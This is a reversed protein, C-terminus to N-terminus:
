SNAAGPPPTFGAPYERSDRPELVTFRARSNPMHLFGDKYLYPGGWQLQDGEKSLKEIGQYIPMIRAMEERISQTDNFPFLLEGNSMAKRGMLVPIQWDPLAEGIRHGPIEPSFRIRREISTATGGTRQEYLTQAPLVIVADRADLLMATNLVIDQHVRFAVRTTAEAAFTYDPIADLLDDGISYLFKIEERHAAEIMQAAKLGPASSVPHRWLNSFRRANEDNVVFGGPFIDPVTGCEGGASQGGIPLIGCKERGIMGRALALNVIAEVNEVGWQRQTLEASYVFVVSRANSYLRAFREMAARTLGSRQELMQWPQKELAEELKAMGTTHKAIFGGDLQNAAILNKLIGNIFAIEGGLRVPFFDDTLKADYQAGPAVAVNEVGNRCVPDIMLVRTGQQKAVQMYKVTVAESSALDIGFLVVLDAGIIDSLSCTSAGLGLTNKLGAASTGVCLRSCLDVNNTGLARALKQFVYYVENTLRRTTAFFGMQNPAIGRISKVILDFAEEWGIRVFGKHNSRRMMPYALRGLCSLKERDLKRLREVDGLVPAELPGMTNLKLLNLRTM